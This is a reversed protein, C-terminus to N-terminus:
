VCQKVNSDFLYSVREDLEVKLEDSLQAAAWVCLVQAPEHGHMAAASAFYYVEEIDQVVGLGQQYLKALEFQAPAIGVNAAESFHDASLGYDVAVGLGNLYALGLRYHGELQYAAVSKQYWHNAQAYDQEVGQGQAYMDGLCIMANGEEQAGKSYWFLAQQYDPPSLQTYYDGLHRQAECYDLEAAQRYLAVAQSVDQQTGLGQMYLTALETLARVNNEEAAKRLWFRAREYDQVVGNGNLYMRALEEMAAQEGQAAAKNFWFFAQEPEVVEDTSMLYEYGLSFQAEGYGQEAAKRLLRLAHPRLAKRQEARKNVQRSMKMMTRTDGVEIARVQDVWADEFDPYLLKEALQYQAQADVPDSSKFWTLVNWWSM